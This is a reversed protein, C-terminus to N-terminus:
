TSTSPPSVQFFIHIIGSVVGWIFMFREFKPLPEENEIEDGAPIPSLEGDKNVQYTFGDTEDKSNATYFSTISEEEEEWKEESERQIDLVRLCSLWVMPLFSGLYSLSLLSSSNHNPRRKKIITASLSASGVVNTIQFISITLQFIGSVLFMSIVHAALDDATMGDSVNLSDFKDKTMREANDISSVNVIGSTITLLLLPPLLFFRYFAIVPLHKTFSVWLGIVSVIIICLGNLVSFYLNEIPKDHGIEMLYQIAYIGYSFIVLGFLLSISNTIRLLSRLQKLKTEMWGGSLEERMIKLKVLGIISSFLCLVSTALALFAAIKNHALIDTTQLGSEQSLPNFSVDYGLLFCFICVVFMIFSIIQLFWCFVKMSQINNYKTSIFGILSVVLLLSGFVILILSSWLQIKVVQASWFITSLLYSGLIILSMSFLALFIIGGDVIRNLILPPIDFLFAPVIRYRKKHDEFTANSKTEEEEEESLSVDDYEWQHSINLTPAQHTSLATSTTIPPQEELHDLSSPYPHTLDCVSMESGGYEIPLQEEGVLERLM